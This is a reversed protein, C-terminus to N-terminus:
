GGASVRARIGAIDRSGKRIEIGLDEGGIGIRIRVTDRVESPTGM